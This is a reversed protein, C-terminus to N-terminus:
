KRRHRVFLGVVAIGLLVVSSPEPVLEIEGIHLPGNGVVTPFLLRYSDYATTNSTFTVVQHFDTTSDNNRGSPLSLPGQAIMTYDVGNNTGELTFSSPDMSTDDPDNNATYIWLSTVPVIDNAADIELGAGPGFLSGYKFFDGGLANDIANSADQDLPSFDSPLPIVPDGPQTVDFPNPVYPASFATATATLLVASALFWTTQNM